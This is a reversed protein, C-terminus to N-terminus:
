PKKNGLISLVYIQPFSKELNKLVTFKGIETDDYDAFSKLIENAKRYEESDKSYEKELVDLFEPINRHIKTADFKMAVEDIKMKNLGRM